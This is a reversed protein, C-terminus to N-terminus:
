PESRSPSRCSACSFSNWSQAPASVPGSSTSLAVTAHASSNLMTPCIPTTRSLRSMSLWGDPNDSCPEVAYKSCSEVAAKSGHRRRYEPICAAHMCCMAALCRGAALSVKPAQACSLHRLARKCVEEKHVAVGEGAREDQGVGAVQVHDDLIADDYRPRVHSTGASPAYANM